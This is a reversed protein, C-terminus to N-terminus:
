GDGLFFRGDVPTLANAEPLILGDVILLVFVTEAM